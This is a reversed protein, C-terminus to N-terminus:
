QSILGWGYLPSRIIHCRNLSRFCHRHFISYLKQKFTNVYCIETNICSLTEYKYTCDTCIILVIFLFMVAIVHDLIWVFIFYYIFYLIRSNELFIIFFSTVFDMNTILQLVWQQEPALATFHSFLLACVNVFVCTKIYIFLICAHFTCCRCEEPDMIQAPICPPTCSESQSAAPLLSIIFSLM